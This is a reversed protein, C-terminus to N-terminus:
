SYRGWAIISLGAITFYTLRKRTEEAIEEKAREESKSIEGEAVETSLGKEKALKNATSTAGGIKRENDKGLSGRIISSFIEGAISM